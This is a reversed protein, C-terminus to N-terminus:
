GLIDENTDCTYVFWALVLCLVLTHISFHSFLYSGAKKVLSGLYVGDQSRNPLFTPFVFLPLCTLCIMLFLDSYRYGFREGGRDANILSHIQSIGAAVLSLFFLIFYFTSDLAESGQKEYEDPSREIQPTHLDEEASDGSLEQIHDTLNTTDGAERSTGLLTYIITPLFELTGLMCAFILINIINAFMVPPIYYPIQHLITRIYEVHNDQVLLRNGGLPRGRILNRWGPTWPLPYSFVPTSREFKKRRLYLAEHEERIERSTAALHKCFRIRTRCLPCKTNMPNKQGLRRLCPECFIHHCPETQFPEHLLDLCVPCIIDEPLDGLEPEAELLERLKAEVRENKSEIERMRKKERERRRQRRKVKRTYRRGRPIDEESSEHQTDDSSSSQQEDEPTNESLVESMDGDLSRLNLSSNAANQPNEGSSEPIEQSSSFGSQEERPRPEVLVTNSVPSWIDVKSKVIYIPESHGSVFDFGGIRSGCESPCSLKGKTWGSQEVATSVWTPLQDEAVSYINGEESETSSRFGSPPNELVVARCKKCKLKSITTTEDVVSM